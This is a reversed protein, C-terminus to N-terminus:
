AAEPERIFDVYARITDERVQLLRERESVRRSLLDEVTEELGAADVHKVYRTPLGFEDAAWLRTDTGVLVSPVGVGALPVAAHLRNVLAAGAGTILQGYESLSTPLHAPYEPLVRRALALEIENHCLVVVRHRRSLRRAVDVVTDAWRRTDVGQGWDTNAGREQFNVVVYPDGAPQAEKELVRGVAVAGCPILPATRGMQRWLKQALRDRVTSRGAISLLRRYSAIDGADAAEAISEPVCELPFSSGVAADIVPTGAHALAGLLHHFMLEVEPSRSIGRVINPGGCAIALDLQRKPLQHWLLQAVRPRDLCRRVVQARGHPFRDVLRVPHSSGYVSFPEHQEFHRIPTDAGFADRVIVEWGVAMFTHGINGGRHSVLAIQM